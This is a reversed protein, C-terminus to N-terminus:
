VPGSHKEPALGLFRWAEDIADLVRSVKGIFRVRAYRVGGPWAHGGGDVQYRRYTRERRGHELSECRAEM